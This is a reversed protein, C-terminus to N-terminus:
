HNRYIKEQRYNSQQHTFKDPKQHHIAEFDTTNPIFHQLAMIGTVSLLVQNINLTTLFHISLDLQTFKACTPKPLHGLGHPYSRLHVIDM